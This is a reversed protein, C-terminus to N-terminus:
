ITVTRASVVFVIVISCISGSRALSLTRKDNARGYHRIFCRNGGGLLCSRGRKKKEPNERRQLEATASGERFPASSGARPFM